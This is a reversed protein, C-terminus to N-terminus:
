NNDQLELKTFRNIPTNFLSYVLLFINNLEQLQKLTELTERIVRIKPPGPYRSYEIIGRV